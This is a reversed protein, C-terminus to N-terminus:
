LFMAVAVLLLTAAAAAAIRLSPAASFPTLINNELAGSYVGTDNFATINFRDSTAYLSNRDHVIVEVYYQGATVTPPLTVYTRSGAVSSALAGVASPAGKDDIKYLTVDYKTTAADFGDASWAVTKQTKLLTWGLSSSPQLVSLRKDGAAVELQGSIARFASNKWQMEFHYGSGPPVSLPLFWDFSGTNPVSYGVPAVEPDSTLPLWKTIGSKARKLRIDFQVDASINVATWKITIPEGTSMRQGNLPATVNLAYNLLKVRFQESQDIVGSDVQYYVVVYFTNKDATVLPVVLDFSGTNRTDYSAILLDARDIITFGGVKVWNRADYVRVVIPDDDLLGVSTWKITTSFGSTLESTMTPSTITIRKPQQQGNVNVVLLFLLSSLLFIMMM